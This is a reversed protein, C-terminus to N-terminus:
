SPPPMTASLAAAAGRLGADTAIIVYVPIPALFSSLRGKAQFASRFAGSTLADLIKPAIGGGLYVGGRAGLVLAVDGAFRGLWIAFYGLADAALPDARSLAHEVIEAASCPRAASGRMDGLLQYIRVLGPGSILREVSLHGMNEAVGNLLALEEKSEVAFTMHGGESPLSVWGSASAVLGAVGLGTGPGLVAKAARDVPEAGGIQHLDRGTLHPLSLALAEFDNVLCLHEAGTAGRLEDRTFSWSHNTLHLIEGSVPGAIALSAM